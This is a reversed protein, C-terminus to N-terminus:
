RVLVLKESSRTVATYLWRAHEIKDFPFKEEIVLVKDWESGQAKHCTIAYGYTFELPPIDRTRPNRNLQYVTKWDLSFEGTDIMKKDMELSHFYMGSDSIFDGVILDIHSLGDTSKVISPLYRKTLFSDKLIGITGNVLPEENDSFCDWYNRLCIIKDGDQPKEGFNLLKRMQTNISVRTANTAVLIQDAWTLMGTNLEEKNLIQVEKGQFVEIPRNERIAMSLQIIESEQAQRMIEDLFIHPADLLHNDEKKDVPPLQFPDGLCIVYVNHKFLLDMLTKPAMSVEDVVVIKYPISPNPIRVFGGSEKPISKYLLKHLTIVNKNGKKLLVQAAKGTFCAFCVDTEKVGYTKLEEIIFRVLTSKGAGAYGAIVTYKEKNKYRQLALTLGNKQKENLEM